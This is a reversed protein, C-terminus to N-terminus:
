YNQFFMQPFNKIQNQGKIFCQILDSVLETFNFYALGFGLEINRALDSNALGPVPRLGLLFKQM